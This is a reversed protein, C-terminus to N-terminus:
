KNTKMNPLNENANLLYTLPDHFSIVTNMLNGTVNVFYNNLNVPATSLSSIKLYNVISWTQKAINCFKVVRRNYYIDKASKITRRYVKRYVKM